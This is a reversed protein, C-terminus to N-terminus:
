VIKGCPIMWSSRQTGVSSSFNIMINHFEPPKATQLVRWQTEWRVYPHDHTVYGQRWCNARVGLYQTLHAQQKWSWRGWCWRGRWDELYVVADKGVRAHLTAFTEWLLIPLGDGAPHEKHSRAFINRVDM